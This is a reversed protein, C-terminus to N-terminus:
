QSSEQGQELTQIKFERLLSVEEDSLYKDKLLDPRRLWTQGLAQKLRWRRIKDHDGGLLESPVSRDEFEEPRTYHPWDLLGNSFSEADISEHNGLVGPLCRVMAEILVMAPLEGGAVVYDGISIEEDVEADLVRQDIGEYRGALLVLNPGGAFERVKEQTLTRGQPSLYVVKGSAQSKAARLARTLQPAQMVMGPGGGYPRDDIRRYSDEAYDTYAEINENDTSQADLWHRSEDSSPRDSTCQDVWHILDGTELRSKIASLQFYIDESSFDTGLISQQIAEQMGSQEDDFWKILHEQLLFAREKAQKSWNKGLEYAENSSSQHSKSRALKDM